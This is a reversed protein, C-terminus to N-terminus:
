LKHVMQTQPLLVTGILTSFIGVKYKRISYKNEKVFENRKGGPQRNEATNNLIISFIYAGGIINIVM